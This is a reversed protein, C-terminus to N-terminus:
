DAYLLKNVGKIQYDSLLYQGCPIFIRLIGPNPYLLSKVEPWVLTIGLIRIHKQDKKRIAIHLAFGRRGTENILYGKNFTYNRHLAIEINGKSNILKVPLGMKYYNKNNDDKDTGVLNGILTHDTPTKIKQRGNYGHVFFYDIESGFPLDLEVVLRVTPITKSSFIGPGDIIMKRPDEM